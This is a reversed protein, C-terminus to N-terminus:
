VAIGFDGRAFRPEQYARASQVAGANDDLCVFLHLLTDPEASWGAILKRAQLSQAEAQYFHLQCITQKGPDKEELVPYRFLFHERQRGAIRDIVSIRLLKGNAFHGMKAARLALSRGMRGFGIIVVHVTRPDDKGIGNGDLPLQLLVRRAEGDYVDFFQLLFGAKQGPDNGALRQLRERLHINALHVFCEPRKSQEPTALQRIQMAIRVNTEDEPTIVVVEKAHAVRAHELVAPETADGIWYFIGADDCAALLENNPDKEIVVVAENIARFERALQLGKHGLGCVIAHGSLSGHLLARRHGHAVSVFGKVLSFGVVLPALFRAVQLQWSLSGGTHEFHLHFLKLSDYLADLLSATHEHEGSLRIFGITGLLIALLGLSCLVLWQWRLANQHHHASRTDTHNTAANMDPIGFVNTPLRTNTFSMESAETM